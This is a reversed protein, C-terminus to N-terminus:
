LFDDKEIYDIQQKHRVSKSTGSTGTLLKQAIQLLSEWFSKQDMAFSVRGTINGLSLYIENFELHYEGRPDVKVEDAFEGVLNLIINIEQAKHKIREYNKKIEKASMDSVVLELKRSLENAKLINRAVASM